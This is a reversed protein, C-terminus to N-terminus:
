VSKMDYNNRTGEELDLTDFNTLINELERIKETLNNIKETLYCFTSVNAIVTFMTNLMLLEAIM